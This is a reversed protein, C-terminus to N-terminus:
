RARAGIPPTPRRPLAPVGGLTGDVGSQPRDGDGRSQYTVQRAVRILIDYLCDPISPVIVAVWLCFVVEPPLTGPNDLAAKSPDTAISSHTLIILIQRATAFTHYIERHNQEHHSPKGPCSFCGSLPSSVILGSSLGERVGELVVVATLNLRIPIVVPLLLPSIGANLTLVALSCANQEDGPLGPWACPSLAPLPLAVELLRHVEPV